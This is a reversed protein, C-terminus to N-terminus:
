FEETVAAAVDNLMKGRFILGILVFLKFLSDGIQVHEHFIGRSSFVKGFCRKAIQNTKALRGYDQIFAVFGGAVQGALGDFAEIGGDDHLERGGRMLPCVDQDANIAHFQQIFFHDLQGDINGVGILFIPLLAQALSAVLALFQFSKGNTM